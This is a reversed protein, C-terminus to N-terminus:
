SALALSMGAGASAHAPHCRWSGVYARAAECAGKVSGGSRYCDLAVAVAHATTQEDPAESEAWEAVVTALTEEPTM